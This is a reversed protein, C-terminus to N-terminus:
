FYTIIYHVTMEYDHGKGVSTIKGGVIIEDNKVKSYISERHSKKLNCCVTGWPTDFPWIVIYEGDEDIYGLRGVIEICKGKYDNSAKAPNENFAIFLDEVLVKSYKNVDEKQVSETELTEERHLPEEETNKDMESLEIIRGLVAFIILAWVWWRKHWPKKNEM